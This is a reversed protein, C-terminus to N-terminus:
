LRPAASSREYPPRSPRGPAVPARRTEGLLWAFLSATVVDAAAGPNIPPRATRLRRDLREMLRRGRAEGPGGARLIAAADRSLRGAVRAGHRRTVLTDPSAALIALFAGAVADDLALGRKRHRRIAPLGITFTAAFGTAYERAVLDHDAALRMCALLTDTPARRVDQRPVRGLGGPRALRIAAYAARADRRDLDRLVQRVRARLGVPRRRLAARALPALLLAIGLNTNTGVRRRTERVAALVLPGVRARGHRRFAAGLAGASLVFERYGLAPLDRGRGVNGPKLAELELLCAVEAAAAVLRPTRPGGIL